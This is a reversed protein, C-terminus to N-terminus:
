ENNGGFISKRISFLEKDLNFISINNKEKISLIGFGNICLDTNKDTDINYDFNIEKYYKKVYINEYSYITISTNNSFKIYFKDICLVENTKMNFTIPKIINKYKSKLGYDKILFGPSDIITLNNNLKINIFELTTNRRNSITLKNLKPNYLEILKNIFSSKGSNTPGLITCKKINNIDLYNILNNIGYKKLTSICKVSYINYVKKINEIIRNINISNSILDIKSILFLKNGKIKNYIDITNNNINLFDVIYIKFTNDKNVTDIITKISKENDNNILEGYHTLRYCRKCYKADNIKDTSVYGQELENISQLTSGCGFCIKNM